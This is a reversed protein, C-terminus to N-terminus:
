QQMVEITQKSYYYKTKGEAGSSDLRRKKTVRATNSIPEMEHLPGYTANSM